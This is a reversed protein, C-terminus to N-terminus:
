WSRIDDPEPITDRVIEWRLSHCMKRLEHAESHRLAIINQPHFAVVFDEGDRSITVQRRFPVANKRFSEVVDFASMRIDGVSQFGRWLSNYWRCFGNAVCPSGATPQAPRDTKLSHAPASSVDSQPSFGGDRLLDSETALSGLRCKSRIAQRPACRPRM